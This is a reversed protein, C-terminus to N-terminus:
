LEWAEKAAEQAAAISPLAAVWECEEKAAGETSEFGRSAKGRLAEPLREAGRALRSTV